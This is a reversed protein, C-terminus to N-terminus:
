KKKWMVRRTVNWTFISSLVCNNQEKISIISSFTPLQKVQVWLHLKSSFDPSLLYNSVMPFVVTKYIPFLVPRLKLGFVNNMRGFLNGLFIRFDSVVIIQIWFDINEIYSWSFNPPALCVWAQGGFQVLTHM